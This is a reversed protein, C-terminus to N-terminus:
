THTPKLPPDDLNIASFSSAYAQGQNRRQIESWSSFLRKVYFDLLQPLVTHLMPWWQQPCNQVFPIVFQEARSFAVDAHAPSFVRCAAFRADPPPVCSLLPALHRNQMHILHALVYELLMRDLDKSYFEEGYTTM